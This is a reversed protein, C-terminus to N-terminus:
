EVEQQEPDSIFRNILRAFDDSELLPNALEISDPGTPQAALPEARPSPRTMQAPRTAPRQPNSMKALTALRLQLAHEQEELEARKSELQSERQRVERQVRIRRVLLREKSRELSDWQERCEAAHREIEDQLSKMKLSYEAEQERLAEM